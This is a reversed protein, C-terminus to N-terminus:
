SVNEIRHEENGAIVEDAYLKPVKYSEPRDTACM